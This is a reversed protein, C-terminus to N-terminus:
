WAADEVRPGCGYNFTRRGDRNVSQEYATPYWISPHTLTFLLQSYAFGEGGEPPPRLKGEWTFDYGIAASTRVGRCRNIFVYLVLSSVTRFVHLWITASFLFYTNDYNMEVMWVVSIHLTEFIVCINNDFYNWINCNKLM